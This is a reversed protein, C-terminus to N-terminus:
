VLVDSLVKAFPLERYRERVPVTRSFSLDIDKPLSDPFLIENFLAFQLADIPVAISREAVPLDRLEQSWTLVHDLCYV